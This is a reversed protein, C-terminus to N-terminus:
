CTFALHCSHSRSHANPRLTFPSSRYHCHSNFSCSLSSELHCKRKLSSRGRRSRRSRRLSLLFFWFWFGSVRAQAHHTNNLNLLPSLPFFYSDDKGGKAGCREGGRGERREILSFCMFCLRKEFRLNPSLSLCLSQNLNRTRMVDGDKHVM